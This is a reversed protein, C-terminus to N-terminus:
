HSGSRPDREEDPWVETPEVDITKRSRDQDLRRGAPLDATIDTVAERLRGQLKRSKRRMQGFMQGLQGRAQEAIERTREQVQNAAAQTQERAKEWDQEWDQPPKPFPLPPIRDSSVPSRVPIEGAFPVASEVADHQVMMRRRGISIIHSPLIQYLGEPLDRFGEPLLLYTTVRGTAPDLCFDVIRGVRDGADSWVELDIMTQVSDPLPEPTSIASKLVVGDHGISEIQAWPFVQQERGLLGGRCAIGVIQHTDRDILIQSVAGVAETTQLDLVLRQQLTYGRLPAPADAM